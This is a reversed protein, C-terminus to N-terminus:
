SSMRFGPGPPANCAGRRHRRPGKEGTMQSQVKYGHEPKGSAKLNGRTPRAPPAIRIVEGVPVGLLMMAPRTDGAM